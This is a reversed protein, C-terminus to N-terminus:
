FNIYGTHPKKKQKKWNKLRLTQSPIWFLPHACHCHTQTSCANTCKSYFRTWFHSIRSTWWLQWRNRVPWFCRFASSRYIVQVGCGDIERSSEREKVYVYVIRLKCISIWCGHLTCHYLKSFTKSRKNMLKYCHHTWARGASGVRADTLQPEATLPFWTFIAPKASCHQLILSRQCVQSVKSYYCQEADGSTTTSGGM